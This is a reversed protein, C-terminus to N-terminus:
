SWIPFRKLGAASGALWKYEFVSFFQPDSFFVGTEELFKKYSVVNSSDPDIVTVQAGDNWFIASSVAQPFAIRLADYAPYPVGEAYDLGESSKRETAVHYIRKYNPQFKDYSM